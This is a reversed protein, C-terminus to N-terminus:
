VKKKKKSKTNKKTMKNYLFIVIRIIFIIILYLGLLIPVLLYEIGSFFGEQVPLLNWIFNKYIILYNIIVGCLLWSIASFLYFKFEKLKMFLSIKKSFKFHFIAYILLLFVPILLIGDGGISVSFAFVTVFFIQKLLILILIILFNIM